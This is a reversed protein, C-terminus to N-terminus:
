VYGGGILHDARGKHNFVCFVALLVSHLSRYITVDWIKLISNRDHMMDDNMYKKCKLFIQKIGM